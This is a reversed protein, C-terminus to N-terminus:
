ATEETARQLMSLWAAREAVLRLFNTTDYANAMFREVKEVQRALYRDAV